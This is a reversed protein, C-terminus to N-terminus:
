ITEKGYYDGKKDYRNEKENIKKNELRRMVILGKLIFVGRSFGSVCFNRPVVRITLIVRVGRDKLAPIREM